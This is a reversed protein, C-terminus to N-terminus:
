GIELNTVREANLNRTERLFGKPKQFNKSDWNVTLGTAEIISATFHICNQRNLNYTRGTRNQWDDAVAHIDFYQQDSIITSFQPDAVRLVDPVKRLVIGDVSRMTIAPSITKATFGLYQNIETGDSLTGELHVFAHPFFEGFDSSYYTAKVQAHAFQAVLLLILITFFAPIRSFGPM